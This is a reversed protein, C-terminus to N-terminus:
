IAAEIGHELEDRSATRIEGGNVSIRYRESQLSGFKILASRSERYPLPLDALPSVILLKILDGEWSEIEASFGDIPIAVRAAEDVWVGGFYHELYASAALGGGASWNMGTWTGAHGEVGLHHINEPAYGMGAEAAGCAALAPDFNEGLVLRNIDNEHNERIDMLAFSARCAAVARELYERDGTLRYYDAYTPVFRAQRGDNWEGDTNMVGFGGFLHGSRHAPNWAQQYLSLINLVYIGLELWHREDTLQYLSLFMDAAWQISLNCHPSIGSYYDIAHLPKPSCSYYAEFDSFALRPLVRDEIFRGASIAAEKLSEEGTLKAVKALVAGSIATTGSERLQKAPALDGYFYTPVAGSELQQTALFRSYEVVLDRPLSALDFIEDWYLLWWASVGMAGTDFGNLADAARATWHLTGEYEGSKFNYISPHAGNTRPAALYLALIGDATKRLTEDSSRDAYYRIGFGVNLDNEWAHFNAGHRRINDIGICKAGDITASKISKPLEYRHTYRKGYEAFPMVQPRVDRISRAGFRTWIQSALHASTKHPDEMTGVILEFAYGFELRPLPIAHGDIHKAYVHEEVVSTSIGYSLRPAELVVGGSTRYDLAHPLDYNESFVDLDPFLAAFFGNAAVSAVPSRFFHDSCLHDESKHLNPLWAFEEPDTAREAKGDPIFYIHSMLRGLESPDEESRISDNVEFRVGDESDLLTIREELHHGGATGRLVIADGSEDFEASSFLGTVRSTIEGVKWELEPDQTILEFEDVYIGPRGVFGTGAVIIWEGDNDRCCIQIYRDDGKELVSLRIKSNELLM